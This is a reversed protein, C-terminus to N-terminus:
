LNAVLPWDFLDGYQELWRALQQRNGATRLSLLPAFDQWLDIDYGIHENRATQVAIAHQQCYDLHKSYSHQGYFFQMSAPLSLLMANTGNEQNDPVLTVAAGSNHHAQLLAEIDATNAVPLDAHLIMVEPIHRTALESIAAAVGSNLCCDAELTLVDANHTRALQAARPCRTVVAVGSIGACTKLMDLLDALLAGMLTPRAHGPLAHALRSKCSELDKVPIVVWM